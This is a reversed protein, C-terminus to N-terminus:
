KGCKRCHHKWRYWTFSKSCVQCEVATDSPMWKTISKNETDDNIRLLRESQAGSDSNSSDEELGSYESYYDSSSRELSKKSLSVGSYFSKTVSGLSKGATMLKNVESSLRELPVPLENESSSYKEEDESNSDKEEESDVGLANGRFASLKKTIRKAISNKVQLKKKLTNGILQEKQLQDNLLQIRKSIAFVEAARIGEM